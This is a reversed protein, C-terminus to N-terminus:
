RGKVFRSPWAREEREKKMARLAELTDASSAAAPLGPQLERRRTHKDFSRDLMPPVFLVIVRDGSLQSSVTPERQDRIGLFESSTVLERAIHSSRTFKKLRPELELDLTRGAM